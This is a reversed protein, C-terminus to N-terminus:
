VGCLAGTSEATLCWRGRGDDKWLRRLALNTGDRRANARSAPCQQKCAPQEAQDRNTLQERLQPGCRGLLERADIPCIARELGFHAVFFGCLGRKDPQPPVSHVSRYRFQKYRPRKPRAPHSALRLPRWAGRWDSRSSAGRPRRRGGLGRIAPANRLRARGRPASGGTKRGARDTRFSRSLRRGRAALLVGHRKGDGPGRRVYATASAGDLHGDLVHGALGFSGCVAAAGNKPAPTAAPPLPFAGTEPPKRMPVAPISGAVERTHLPREGASSHAGSRNSFLRPSDRPRNSRRSV